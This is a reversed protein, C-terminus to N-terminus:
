REPPPPPPAAMCEFEGKESSILTHSLIVKIQAWHNKASPQLQGSVSVFRGNASRLENAMEESSPILEIAFEPNCIKAREMSSFLLIVPTESGPPEPRIGAVLVGDLRVDRNTLVERQSYIAEFPVACVHEPSVGACIGSVGQPEMADCSATVLALLAASPSFRLNMSNGGRISELSCRHYRGNEDGLGLRETRNQRVKTGPIQRRKPSSMGWMSRYLRHAATSPLRQGFFQAITYKVFGPM